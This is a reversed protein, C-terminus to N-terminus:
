VAEVTITKDTNLIFKYTGATTVTYTANSGPYSTNWDATGVKYQHTGAALAIETSYTGDANATMPASTDWNNFTGRLYYKTTVEEGNWSGSNNDTATYTNQTAADRVSVGSTWSNWYSSTSFDKSPDIRYFNITTIGKTVEFTWQTRGANATGLYVEGSEYDYLYINASANKIWSGSTGDVFTITETEAPETPAETTAETPAATTAETPAATTAETPAATTVETPEAGTTPQPETYPFKGYSNGGQGNNLTGDWVPYYCYGDLIEKIDPTKNRDGSGDDKLGTFIIATMGAPVEIKYVDYNDDGTE